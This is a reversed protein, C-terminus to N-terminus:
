KGRHHLLLLVENRMIQKNVTWQNTMTWRSTPIGQTEQNSSSPRYRTKWRRERWAWWIQMMSFYRSFGVVSRYVWSHGGGKGIRIVYIHKNYCAMVAGVILAELNKRPRSFFRGWNQGIRWKKRIEADWPSFERPFCHLSPTNGSFSTQPPLVPSPLRANRHDPIWGRDESADSVWCASTKHHLVHLARPFPPPACRVVSSSAEELFLGTKSSPPFPLPFHPDGRTGRSAFIHIGFRWTWATRWFMWRM